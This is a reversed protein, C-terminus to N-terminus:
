RGGCDVSSVILQFSTKMSWSFNISYPKSKLQAFAEPDMGM